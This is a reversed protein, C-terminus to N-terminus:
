VQFALQIVADPSLRNSKLMEYSFGSHVMRHFPVSKKLLPFKQKAEEIASLLGSDLDFKVLSVPGITSGEYECDGTFSSQTAELIYETIQTYPNGDAIVEEGLAGLSGSKGVVFQFAKGYWRNYIDHFLWKSKISFKNVYRNTGDGCQYSNMVDSLTQPNDDDLCLVFM